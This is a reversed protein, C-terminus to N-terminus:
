GQKSRRLLQVRMSSHAQICAQSGAATSSLAVTPTVAEWIWAEQAARLRETKLLELPARVWPCRM